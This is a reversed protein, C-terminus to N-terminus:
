VFKVLILVGQVFVLGLVILRFRDESIRELIKKGIFTGVFSVGILLPILYLMSSTVYGQGVYVVSRSADIALDILASTAIFVEMKLRFSALAMGRIAGGTGLLGALFGSIVGGLIANNRTPKWHFDQFLLLFSSLLILLAGLGFELYREEFTNSLLAGIIVLIVAPIGMNILLFRDVGKKFLIIKSLNSSVHFLATIGLVAQFDMFYAAMPVFFLSSGFGGITGLVEALLALILFLLLHEIM